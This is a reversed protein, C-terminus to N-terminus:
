CYAGVQEFDMHGRAVRDVVYTWKREAAPLKKWDLMLETGRVQM